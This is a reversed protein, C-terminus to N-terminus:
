GMHIFSTMILSCVYVVVLIFFVLTLGVSDQKLEM